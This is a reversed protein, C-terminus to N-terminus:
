NPIYSPLIPLLKQAFDLAAKRGFEEADDGKGLPVIVRVLAGDTRGLWMADKITDLRAHYESAIIKGRGQYWYLALMRVGDKEIVYENAETNQGLTDLRYAGM